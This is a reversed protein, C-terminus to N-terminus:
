VMPEAGPSPSPNGNDQMAPLNPQPTGGAGTGSRPFLEALKAYLDNLAPMKPPPTMIAPASPTAGGSKKTRDAIAALYALNAQLRRMCEIYEPSPKQAPSKNAQSSQDPMSSSNGDQSQAPPPGGAKGASQLNVVEQLLTSNIDLLTSVRAKERAGAQGQSQAQAGPQPPAAAGQSPAPQSSQGTVLDNASVSAMTQPLSQASSPPLTATSSTSTQPSSFQALSSPVPPHTFPPQFNAHPAPPAPLDHM